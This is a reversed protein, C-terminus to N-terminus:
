DDWLITSFVEIVQFLPYHNLQLSFYSTHREIRKLVETWLVRFNIAFVLTSAKIKLM